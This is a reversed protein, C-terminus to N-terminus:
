LPRRPRALRHGRRDPAPRSGRSRIVTQDSIGQIPICCARRYRLSRGPCTWIRDFPTPTEVMGIGDDGEYPLPRLDSLRFAFKEHETGIRWAERPKCGAELYAVLQQKDTVPEGRSKPPASM